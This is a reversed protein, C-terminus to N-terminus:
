SFGGFFLAPAFFNNFSGMLMMGDFYVSCSFRRSCILSNLVCMGCYVDELMERAADVQCFSPTKVATTVSLFCCYLCRNPM